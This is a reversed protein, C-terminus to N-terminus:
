LAVLNGRKVISGFLSSTRTTDMCWPLKAFGRAIRAGSNPVGQSLLGVLLSFIAKFLSIACRKVPMNSCLLLGM